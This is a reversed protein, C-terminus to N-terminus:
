FQQQAWAAMVLAVGEVLVPPDLEEEKARCGGEVLHRPERQLGDLGFYRIHIILTGRDHAGEGEGVHPEIDHEGERAVVGDVHVSDSNTHDKSGDKRTQSHSDLHHNIFAKPNANRTLHQSGHSLGEDQISGSLQSAHPESLM